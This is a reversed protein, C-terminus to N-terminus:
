DNLWERGAVEAKHERTQAAESQAQQDRLNELAAEFPLGVAKIAKINDGDWAFDYAKQNKVDVARTEVVQGKNEWNNMSDLLDELSRFQNLEIYLM